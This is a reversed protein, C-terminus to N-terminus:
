KLRWSLNIAFRPPCGVDVCEILCTPSSVSSCAITVGCFASRFCTLLCRPGHIRVDTETRVWEKHISWSDLTHSITDNGLLRDLELVVPHRHNKRRAPEQHVRRISCLKHQLIPRRIHLNSLSRCFLVQRYVWCSASAQRRRVMTCARQHRRARYAENNTM